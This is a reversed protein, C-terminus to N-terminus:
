SSLGVPDLCRRLEGNLANQPPCNEYGSRITDSRTAALREGVTIRPYLPGWTFSHGRCCSDCYWLVWKIFFRLQATAERTWILTHHSADSQIRVRGIMNKDTRTALAGPVDFQVFPFNRVTFSPPSLQSVSGGM